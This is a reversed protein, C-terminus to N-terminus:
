RVIDPVKLQSGLSMRRIEKQSLQRMAKAYITRVSTHCGCFESWNKSKKDYPILRNDYTRFGHVHNLTGTDMWRSITTKLVVDYLEMKELRDDKHAPIKSDYPVKPLNALIVGHWIKGIKRYCVNNIYRVEHQSWHPADYRPDRVKERWSKKTQCLLLTRPHIFFDEFIPRGEAGCFVGKEVEYPSFEVHWEIQKKVETYDNGSFERSHRIEDCLKSYVVGFPKGV